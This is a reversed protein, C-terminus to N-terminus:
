DVDDPAEELVPRPSDQGVHRIREACVLGVRHVDYDHLERVTAGGGDHEVTQALSGLAIQVHAQVALERGDVRGDAPPPGEAESDGGWCRSGEECQPD